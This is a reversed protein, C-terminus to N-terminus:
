LGFIFDAVEMLLGVDAFWPKVGLSVATEARAGPIYGQVLFGPIEQNASPFKSISGKWEWQFPWRM